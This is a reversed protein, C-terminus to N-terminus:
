LWRRVARKYALYTEGFKRELYAEEHRIAIAWIIALVAPVAILIWGNAWGIAIAAQLLAMGVYMPNRTLRYVGTSVIEPTPKWPKPDQGIKRFLGMAASILGIGLVGAIAAGAIRLPTPVPLDLPLVLEHLLGGLVVAGLYVFPPPFRVAAGDHTTTDM